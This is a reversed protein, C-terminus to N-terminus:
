EFQMCRLHLETDRERFLVRETQKEKTAINVYKIRDFIGRQACVNAGTGARENVFTNPPAFGSGWTTVM